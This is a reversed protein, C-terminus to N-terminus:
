SPNCSHQPTICDKLYGPGLGYLAKSPNPFGCAVLITGPFSTGPHYRTSVSTGGFLCRTILFSTHMLAEVGLPLRAKLLFTPFSGPNAHM